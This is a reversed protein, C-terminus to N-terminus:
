RPAARRRSGRPRARRPGPGAAPRGTACRPPRRRIAGQEGVADPVGEVDPQPGPRILACRIARPWPTSPMSRTASATRCARSRPTAAGAARRTRGAAPRPGSPCRHQQGVAVDPDAAVRDRQERPGRRQEAGSPRTTTSRAGGPIRCRVGRGPSGCRRRCSGATGTTPPRRRRPPPPRPRRRAAPREPATLDGAAPDGDQLSSSGPQTRRVLGVEGRPQPARRDVALTPSHSPM